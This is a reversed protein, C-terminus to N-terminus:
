NKSILLNNFFICNWFVIKVKDNNTASQLNIVVHSNFSKFHIRCCFLPSRDTQANMNKHRHATLHTYLEVTMM